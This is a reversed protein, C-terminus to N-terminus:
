MDEDKLDEDGLDELQDELDALQDQPDILLSLHHLNSPHLCTIDYLWPYVKM